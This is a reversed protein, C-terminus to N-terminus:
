DYRPRDASSQWRRDPNGSRGNPKLLRVVLSLCHANPSRKSKGQTPQATKGQNCSGPRRGTEIRASAACVPNPGSAAIGLKAAHARHLAKGDQRQNIPVSCAVVQGGLRADSVQDAGVVGGDQEIHAVILPRLVGGRQQAIHGGQTHIDSINVRQNNGVRVPVM